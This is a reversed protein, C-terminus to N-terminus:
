RSIERDLSGGSRAATRATSRKAAAIAKGIADATIRRVREPSIARFAHGMPERAPLIGTFRPKKLLKGRWKRTYRAVTGFEHFWAKHWTEPRFKIVVYAGFGRSGHKRYLGAALHSGGASFIKSFGRGQSQGVSHPGRGSYGTALVEKVLQNGVRGYVSKLTKTAERPMRDRLFDTLDSLAAPDFELKIGTTGRQAYNANGPRRQRRTAYQNQRGSWRRGGLAAHMRSDSM